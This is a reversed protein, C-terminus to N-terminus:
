CKWFALRTERKFYQIIDVESTISWLSKIYLSINVTYGAYRLSIVLMKCFMGKLWTNIFFVMLWWHYIAWAVVLLYHLEQDSLATVCSSNSMWKRIKCFYRKGIVRGIYEDRVLDYWSITPFNVRMRDSIIGYPFLTCSYILTCM